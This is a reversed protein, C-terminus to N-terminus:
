NRCPQPTAPKKGSRRARSAETARSTRGLRTWSTSCRQTVQFPVLDALRSVGANYIRTAVDDIRQESMTDLDSPMITVEALLTCDAISAAYAGILDGVDRIKDELTDRLSEKDQTIGVTKNEQQLIANNIAIIRGSLGNVVTVTAPRTNWVAAHQNMHTLVTEFM